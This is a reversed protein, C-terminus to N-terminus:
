LKYITIDTLLNASLIVLFQRNIYRTFFQIIDNIFTLKEQAEFFLLVAFLSNPTPYSQLLFLSPWRLTCTERDYLGSFDFLM